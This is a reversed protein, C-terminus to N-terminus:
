VVETKFRVHIALYQLHRETVRSDGKHQRKVPHFIIFPTLVSPISGNRIRFPEFTKIVFSISGLKCDHVEQSIQDIESEEARPDQEFSERKEM